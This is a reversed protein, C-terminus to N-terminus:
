EDHKNRDKRVEDREHYKIFINQNSQGEGDTSRFPAIEQHSDKSRTSLHLSAQKQVICHNQYQDPRSLSQEKKIKLKM